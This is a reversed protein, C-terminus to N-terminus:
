DGKLKKYIAKRNVVLGYSICILIAVYAGSKMIIFKNLEENCTDIRSLCEAVKKTNGLTEYTEMAYNFYTKANEYNKEQFSEEAINYYNNAQLYNTSLYIYNECEQIDSYKDLRSYLDIARELYSIATTYSKIQFANIGLEKLQDAQFLVEESPTGIVKVEWEGSKSIENGYKDEYQLEIYFTYYGPDIKMTDASTEAVLSGSVGIEAEEGEFFIETQLDGIAPDTTATITVNYASGTGYNNLETTVVLPDGPLVETPGDVSIAVKPDWRYTQIVIQGQLVARQCGGECSGSKYSVTLPILHKDAPCDSNVYIKYYATVSGNVPIFHQDGMEVVVEEEVYEFYDANEDSLDLKIVPDWMMLDTTNTIKIELTVESLPDPRDPYISVLTVFSDDASSLDINSAAIIGFLLLIVLLRRM